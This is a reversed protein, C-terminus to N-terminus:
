RDFEFLEFSDVAVPQFPLLGHFRREYTFFCGVAHPLFTEVEVSFDVNASESGVFGELCNDVEDVVGNLYSGLLYADQVTGPCAGQPLQYSVVELPHRSYASKVIFMHLESAGADGDHFEISVFKDCGCVSCTM